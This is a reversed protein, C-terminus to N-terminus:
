DTDFRISAVNIPIYERMGMILFYTYSIVPSHFEIYQLLSPLGEGIRNGKLLMFSEMTVSMVLWNIYSKNTVAHWTVQKGGSM